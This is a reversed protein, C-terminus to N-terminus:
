GSSVSQRLAQTGEEPIGKWVVFHRGELKCCRGGWWTIEGQIVYGWPGDCPEKKLIQGKWM